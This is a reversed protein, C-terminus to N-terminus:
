RKDTQSELCDQLAMYASEKLAVFSLFSQSFDFFKLTFLRMLDMTSSEARVRNPPVPSHSRAHTGSPALLECIMSWSVQSRNWGKIRKNPIDVAQMVFVHHLPLNMWDALQLQKPLQTMLDSLAHTLLGAFHLM